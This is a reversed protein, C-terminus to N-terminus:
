VKNKDIDKKCKNGNAHERIEKGNRQFGGGYLEDRMGFKHRKFPLFEFFRM